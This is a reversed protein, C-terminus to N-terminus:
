MNKLSLKLMSRTFMIMSAQVLVALDEESYLDMEEEILDIMIKFAERDLELNMCMEKVQKATYTPESKKM